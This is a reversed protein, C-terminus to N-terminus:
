YINENYLNIFLFTFLFTYNMLNHKNLNVRYMNISLSILFVKNTNHLIILMHNFYAANYFALYAIVINTNGYNKLFKWCKLHVLIALIRTVIVLSSLFSVDMKFRFYICM